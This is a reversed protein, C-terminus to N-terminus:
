KALKSDKLLTLLMMFWLLCSNVIVAFLRLTSDANLLAVCFVHVPASIVNFSPVSLYLQCAASGTVTFLALSDVNFSTLRMDIFLSFFLLFLNMSRFLVRRF